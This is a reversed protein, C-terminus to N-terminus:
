FNGKFILIKLHTHDVFDPAVFDEMSSLDHKNYAEIFRRVIAKNEELSM